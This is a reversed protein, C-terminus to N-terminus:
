TTSGWHIHKEAAAMERPLGDVDPSIGSYKRVTHFTADPLRLAPLYYESNHARKAVKLQAEHTLLYQIVSSLLQFDSVESGGVPRGSLAQREFTGDLSILPEQIYTM